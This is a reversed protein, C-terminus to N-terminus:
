EYGSFTRQFDKSFIKLCPRVTTQSHVRVLAATNRTNETVMAQSLLQFTGAANSCAQQVNCKEISPPSSTNHQLSAMIKSTESSTDPKTRMKLWITNVDVQYIVCM